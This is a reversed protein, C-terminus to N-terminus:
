ISAESAEESAAAGGGGGGEAEESTEKSSADASSEEREMGSKEVGSSPMKSEMEEEEHCDFFDAMSARADKM